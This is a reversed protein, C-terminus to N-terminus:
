GEYLFTNNKHTTIYYKGNRKSTSIIKNGPIGSHLKIQKRISSIINYFTQRDSSKLSASVLLQEITVFGADASHKKNILCQVVSAESEKCLEIYYPKKDHIIAIISKVSNWVIFYNPIDDSPPSVTNKGEKIINNVFSEFPSVREKPDIGLRKKQEEIIELLKPPPLRKRLVLAGSKTFALLDHWERISKGKYIEKFLEYADVSNINKLSCLAGLRINKHPSNLLKILKTIVEFTPLEELSFAVEMCVELDPDDLMELLCRVVKPSSISKLAGVLSCRVNPNPDNQMELLAQIAKPTKFVGLSCVAAGRVDPDPDNRMELLPQIVRSAMSPSKFKELSYAVATRVESSPDNRMKLLPPIADPIKLGGIAFAVSRRVNLNSDNRMSFLINRTKSTNYVELSYAVARRVDPDPDNRMELLSEIAESSKLERLSVVIARRVDPEPDNRMQILPKIAKSYKLEGVSLVAESRVELDPDNFMKLLLQAAKSSNIKRLSFTIARRVNPDHDKVKATLLKVIEPSNIKGLSTAVAQNIWKDNDDCLMKILPKVAIQYKKRGLLDIVKFRISSIPDDLMAILVIAVEPINIKELSDVLASRVDPDPDNRMQLLTQLIGTSHIKGIVGIMFDCFTPDLSNQMQRTVRFSGISNIQGLSGALVSRVDSTSDNRMELLPQVVELVNIERLVKICIKKLEKSCDHKELAYIMIQIISKTKLRIAWVIFDDEDNFLWECVTWGLGDIQEEAIQIAFATVEDWEPSYKELCSWVKYELYDDKVEIIEDSLAKGALFEQFQQHIFRYNRGSTKSVVGLTEAYHLVQDINEIDLEKLIDEIKDDEIVGVIDQRSIHLCIKQFDALLKTKNKKDDSSIHNESWIELYKIFSDIIKAKGLLSSKCKETIKEDQELIAITICFFLPIHLLGKASIDDAYNSFKESLGLEELFVEQMGTEIDCLEAQIYGDYSIKDTIRLDCVGPRSTMIIFDNKSLVESLHNLAYKVKDHILDLGDVLFIKPKDSKPLKSYENDIIIHPDVSEGTFQILVPLFDKMSSAIHGSIQMMITTKGRGADGEILTTRIDDQGIIWKLAEKFDIANKEETKKNDVGFAPRKEIKMKVPVSFPRPLKKYPVHQWMESQKICNDLYEKITM